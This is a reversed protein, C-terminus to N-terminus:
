GPMVETWTNMWEMVMDGTAGNVTGNGELLLGARTNFKMWEASAQMALLKGAEGRILIFGNLDGGHASLLVTEFSDITGEGQLRGLYQHVDQFLEMSAAERGRVAHNWGVFVLNFSM